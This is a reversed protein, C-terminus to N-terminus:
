ICYKSEPEAVIKGTDYVLHTSLQAGTEDRRVGFVIGNREKQTALRQQRKTKRKDKARVEERSWGPTRKCGVRRYQRM